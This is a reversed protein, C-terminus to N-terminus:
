IRHLLQAKMIADNDHIMTYLQIYIYENNKKKAIAYEYNM